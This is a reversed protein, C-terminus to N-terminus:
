KNPICKIRLGLGFVLANYAKRTKQYNGNRDLAFSRGVSSAIQGLGIIEMDSALKKLLTPANRVKTSRGDLIVHVYAKKVM